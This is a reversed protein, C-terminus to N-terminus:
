TERSSKNDRATTSPIYSGFRIRASYRIHALSHKCGRYLSCVPLAAQFCTITTSYLLSKCVEIAISFRGVASLVHALTALLFCMCLAVSVISFRSERRTACILAAVRDFSALLLTLREPTAVANPIAYPVRELFTHQHASRRTLQASLAAFGFRVMRIVSAPFADHPYTLLAM